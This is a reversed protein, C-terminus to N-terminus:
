ALIYASQLMGELAEMNLQIINSVATTTTKELTSTFEVGKIQMGYESRFLSAYLEKTYKSIIYASLPKGQMVEEIKPVELTSSSQSCSAPYIMGKVNSEQIVTLMNLFGVVNADNITFGDSKATSNSDIRALHFVYDVGQIVKKCKEIDQIDGGILKFNPHSLFHKINDLAGSSFNDFCIVNAELDLLAECLKSGIQGAGGTVLINKNEIDRKKM